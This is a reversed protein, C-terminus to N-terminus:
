ATNRYNKIHLHSNGSAARQALLADAELAARRAGLGGTGLGREPSHADVLFIRSSRL